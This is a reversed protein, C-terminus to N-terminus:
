VHRATSPDDKQVAARFVYSVEKMVVVMVVVVM